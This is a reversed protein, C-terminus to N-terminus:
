MKTVLNQLLSEQVGGNKVFNELQKYFEDQKSLNDFTVIPHKM